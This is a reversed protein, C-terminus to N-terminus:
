LIALSEWITVTENLEVHWAVGELFPLWWEIKITAKVFPYVRTVWVEIMELIGKHGM